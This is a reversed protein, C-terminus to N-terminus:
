GLIDKGSKYCISHNEHRIGLHGKSLVLHVWFIAKECAASKPIAGKEKCGASLNMSSQVKCSQVPIQTKHKTAQVPYSQELHHQWVWYAPNSGPFLVLSTFTSFVSSNKTPLSSWSIELDLSPYHGLHQRRTTLIETSRTKTQWLEGGAWHHKGYEGAMHM